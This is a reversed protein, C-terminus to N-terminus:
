HRGLRETLSTGSPARGTRRGRDDIRRYGNQVFRVGLWRLPEPEWPRPRHGVVPLDLLSSPVGAILDALLRGALNAAAVGQGAYGCAHAVGTRRDYCVSPMWDRSVGLPGGWAHTFRVGRLSPFWTRVMERLAGHTPGHLDYGDEIRSGFHYPAGRGGFLIRGDPTRSLYDVSLRFSAVCERGAWGIQAWQEPTLPETLVISSYIPVLRRRMTRLRTLYAEGALVITEARVAGHTTILRRSRGAEVDVVDTQEYITAGRREVTRALGRVLRGPHVVACDSNYLSGVADSVRLREATEQASLVRYHDAVGLTEYAAYSQQLLPQQYPGRALRLSGSKAYCAEITERAVVRGVEDVTDYLALITARARERGFREQLVAPTVAFGSSCWGGNRGSAGFGAIHRELIAVRLSPQRRLLYYATWLGTFGAGLIAVDASVHGALPPRPALSEGSTELWFSYRSYDVPAPASSNSRPM